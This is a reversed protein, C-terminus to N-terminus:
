TLMQTPVLSLNVNFFLKNKIILLYMPFILAESDQYLILHDLEWLQYSKFNLECFINRNILFAEYASILGVSTQRGYAVLKNHM